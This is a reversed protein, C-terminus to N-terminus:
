RGSTNEAAIVFSQAPALVKPRSSEGDIYPAEALRGVTKLSRIM